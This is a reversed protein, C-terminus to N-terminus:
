MHSLLIQTLYHDTRDLRIRKDVGLQLMKMTGILFISVIFMPNIRMLTVYLWGREANPYVGRTAIVTWVKM